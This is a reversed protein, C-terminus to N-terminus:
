NFRPSWQVGSGVGDCVFVLLNVEDNVIHQWLSVCFLCNEEFEVLPVCLIFEFEM